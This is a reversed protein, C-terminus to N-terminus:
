PLGFALCKLHETNYEKTLDQLQLGLFRVNEALQLDKQFQQLDREEENSDGGGLITLHFHHHRNNIITEDRLRAAHEVEADRLYHEFLLLDREIEMKLLAPHTTDPFLPIQMYSSERLWQEISMEVTQEKRRLARGARRHAAHRRSDDMRLGPM